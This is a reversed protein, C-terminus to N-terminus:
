ALPSTVPYWKSVLLDCPIPDTGSQPAKGFGIGVIEAVSSVNESVPIPIPVVRVSENVTLLM